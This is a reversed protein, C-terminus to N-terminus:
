GNFKIIKSVVRNQYENIIVGFSDRQFNSFINSLGLLFIAAPYPIPIKKTFEKVLAGAAM